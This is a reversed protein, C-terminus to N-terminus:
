PRVGKIKNRRGNKMAGGGVTRRAPIKIQLYFFRPITVTTQNRLLLDFALFPFTKLALPLYTTHTCARTYIYIHIYICEVCEVNYM